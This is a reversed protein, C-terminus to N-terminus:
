RKSERFSDYIEAEVFESKDYETIKWYLAESNMGVFEM